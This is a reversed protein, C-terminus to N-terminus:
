NKKGLLDYIEFSLNNKINNELISSTCNIIITATDNFQDNIETQIYTYFHLPGNIKPNIFQNTFHM